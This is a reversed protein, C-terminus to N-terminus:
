NRKFDDQVRVIDDEDSPIWYTHQWIEAVIGYDELGILRHREGQAIRVQEGERLKILETETDNDSRVIGVEGKYVQWIEARRHHYQWSLRAEPKLILIKPSLKGVVRLTDVDIGDFFRNAFDQAEEEKIVLFAGWPREFDQAVITFGYGEIEEQIIKYREKSM